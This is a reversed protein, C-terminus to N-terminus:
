GLKQGLKTAQNEFWISDYPKLDSYKKKGSKVLYDRYWFRVASPISVLFPMFIGYVINQLGHGSEHQKMSLSDACDKTIFFFGGSSFGYGGSKRLVFYVSHGFLHPKHVSILLVIAMLFGLLTMPFGWTISLLWFCFSKLFKM